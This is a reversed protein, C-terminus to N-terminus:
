QGHRKTETFQKIQDALEDLYDLEADKFSSVNEKIDRIADELYDIHFKAPTVVKNRKKAMEDEVGAEVENIRM